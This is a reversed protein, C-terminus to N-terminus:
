YTVAPISELIVPRFEMAYSWVLHRNAILRRQYQVGVAGLKVNVASGLLIRSSDNSYEATVGFTNRSGPLGPRETQAQLTAAVTLVVVGVFIGAPWRTM